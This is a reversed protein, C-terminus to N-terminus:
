GTRRLKRVSRTPARATSSLVWIQRANDARASQQGAYPSDVWMSGMDAEFSCAMAPIVVRRSQSATVIM